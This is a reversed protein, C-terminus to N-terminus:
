FFTAGKEGVFGLGQFIKQDGKGWQPYIDISGMSSLISAASLDITNPLREGRFSRTGFFL